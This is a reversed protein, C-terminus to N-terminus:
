TAQVKKTYGFSIIVLHSSEYHSLDCSNSVKQQDDLSEGCKERRSQAGPPYGQIIVLSAKGKPGLISNVPILPLLPNSALEKPMDRGAPQTRGCADKLEQWTARKM